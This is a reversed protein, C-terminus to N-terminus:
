SAVESTEAARCGILACGAPLGAMTCLGCSRGSGPEVPAFAAGATLTRHIVETEIAIETAAGYVSISTLRGLDLFYVISDFSSVRVVLYAEDTDTTRTDFEAKLGIGLARERMTELQQYTYGSM